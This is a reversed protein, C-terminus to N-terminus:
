VGRGEPSNPAGDRHARRTVERVGRASCEEGMPMQVVSRQARQTIIVSDRQLGAEKHRLLSTPPVWYFHLSFGQPSSLCLIRKAVKNVLNRSESNIM